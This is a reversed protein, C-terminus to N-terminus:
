TRVSDIPAQNFHRFEKWHKRLYDVLKPADKRRFIDWVCGGNAVESSIEHAFAEESANLKQFKCSPTFKENSTYGRKLGNKIKTKLNSQQKEYTIDLNISNQPSGSLKKEFNGYLEQLDENYHKKQMEEIINQQCVDM